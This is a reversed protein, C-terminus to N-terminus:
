FYAEVVLLPLPGMWAVESGCAGPCICFQAVEPVQAPIGRGTPAAFGLEIWVVRAESEPGACEPRFEGLGAVASSRLFHSPPLPGM